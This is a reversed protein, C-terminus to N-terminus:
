CEHVELRWPVRGPQLLPDTAHMPKPLRPRNVHDVHKRGVADFLAHPFRQAQLFQQKRSNEVRGRAFDAKFLKPRVVTKWATFTRREVRSAWVLLQDRRAREKSPPPLSQEAM